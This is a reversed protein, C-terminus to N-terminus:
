KREARKDTFNVRLIAVPRSGAFRQSHGTTVSLPYFAIKKWGPPASQAFNDQYVDSTNVARTKGCGNSTNQGLTTHVNEVDTLRHNM